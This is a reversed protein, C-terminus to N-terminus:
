RRPTLRLFRVGQWELSQAPGPGAFNVTAINGSGVIEFRLQHQAADFIEAPGYLAGWRFAIRDGDITFEVRGYSPEEYTGAIITAGPRPRAVAAAEGRVVTSQTGADLKARASAACGAIATVAWVTTIKTGRLPM